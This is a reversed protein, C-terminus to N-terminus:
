WGFQPRSRALLADGGTEFILIDFRGKNGRSFSSPVLSFSNRQRIVRM